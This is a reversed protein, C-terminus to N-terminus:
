RLRSRFRSLPVTGPPFVPSSIDDTVAYSTNGYGNPASYGFVRIEGPPLLGEALLAGDRWTRFLGTAGDYACQYTEPEPGTPDPQDYESSNDRINPGMKPGTLLVSHPSLQLQRDYDVTVVASGPPITGAVFWQWPDVNVGVGARPIDRAPTDPPIARRNMPDGALQVTFGVVDDTKAHLGAPPIVIHGRPLPWEGDWNAVGCFFLSYIGRYAPYDFPDVDMRQAMDEPLVQDPDGPLVMVDGWTGGEKKVGGFLSPRDIHIVGRGTQEGAWAPKEGYHIGLLADAEVCVGLHLSLRYEAVQM